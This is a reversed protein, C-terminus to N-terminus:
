FRQDRVQSEVILQLQDQTARLKQRLLRVEERLDTNEQIVADAKVDMTWLLYHVLVQRGTLRALPQLDKEEVEIEIGSV